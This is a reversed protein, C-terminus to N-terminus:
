CRDHFRITLSAFQDGIACEKVYSDFDGIGDSGVIRMAATGMGAITQLYCISNGAKAANKAGINRASTMKKNNGGGGFNLM